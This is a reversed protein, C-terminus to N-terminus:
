EVVEIDTSYEHIEIKRTLGNSVMGVVAGGLTAIPVLHNDIKVSTVVADITIKVREGVIDNINDIPHNIYLTTTTM